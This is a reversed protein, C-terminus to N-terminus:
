QRQLDIVRCDSQLIRRVDGEACSAPLNGATNM